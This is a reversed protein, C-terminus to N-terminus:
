YSKSLPFQTGYREIATIAANKLRIDQELGLYGTTGFHFLDRNKVRITRGSFSDGEAYLHLIGEQMADSFVDHVTNM